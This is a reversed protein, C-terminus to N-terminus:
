KCNKPRIINTSSQLRILKSKRGSNTATLLLSTPEQLDLWIGASQGSKECGGLSEPDIVDGTNPDRIEFVIGDSKSVYNALEGDKYAYYNFGYRFASQDCGTLDIFVEARDNPAMEFFDTNMWNDCGESGRTDAEVALPVSSTEAGACGVLVLCAAAVFQTVRNRTRIM